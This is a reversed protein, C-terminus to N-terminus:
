RYMWPCSGTSKRKKCSRRSKKAILPRAISTGLVYGEYSGNAKILPFIYDKVFEDKADITYHKQSIKEAKKEAQEIEKAPQGWM